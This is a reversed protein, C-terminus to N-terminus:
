RRRPLPPALPDALLAVGQHAIDRGLLHDLRSRDVREPQLSWPPPLRATLTAEADETLV